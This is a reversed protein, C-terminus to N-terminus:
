LLDLMSTATSTCVCDSSTNTTVAACKQQWCGINFLNGPQGESDAIGMNDLSTSFMQCQNNSADFSICGRTDRCLTACSAADTVSSPEGLTKIRSSDLPGPEGCHLNPNQKSRLVMSCSQEPKKINADVAPPIMAAHVSSLAALAGLVNYLYM